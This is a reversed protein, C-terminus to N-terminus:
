RSNGRVDTVSWWDNKSYRYDNTRRGRRNKDSRHRDEYDVDDDEQVIYGEFDPDERAANAVAKWPKDEEGHDTDHKQAYNDPQQKAEWLRVVVDPPWFSSRLVTEVDDELVNLRATVTPDANRGGAPWYKLIRVFTFRVGRDAGHRHLSRVMDMKSGQSIVRSAVIWKIRPRRRAGQIIFGQDKDKETHKSEKDNTLQELQTTVKPRSTSEKNNTRHTKNPVKEKLIDSFSRFSLISDRNTNNYMSPQQKDTKNTASEKTTHTDGHDNGKCSNDIVPVRPPNTDEHRSNVSNM